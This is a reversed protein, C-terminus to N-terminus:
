RPATSLPADGGERSAVGRRHPVAMPGTSKSNSTDFSEVARMPARPVFPVRLPSLTEVAAIVEQASRHAGMGPVKRLLEQPVTRM